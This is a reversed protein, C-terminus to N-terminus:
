LQNSVVDSCSVTSYAAERVQVLGIDCTNGSEIPSSAQKEM